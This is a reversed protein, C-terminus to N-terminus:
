KILVPKKSDVYMGDPNLKTKAGDYCCKWLEFHKPAIRNIIYDVGDKRAKAFDYRNQILLFGAKLLPDFESEPLQTEGFLLGSPITIPSMSKEPLPNQASPACAPM